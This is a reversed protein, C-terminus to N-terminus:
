WKKDFLYTITKPCSLSEFLLDARNLKERETQHQNMNWQM